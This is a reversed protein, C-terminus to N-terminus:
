IYFLVYFYYKKKTNKKRVSNRDPEVFHIMHKAFRLTVTGSILSRKLNTMFKEIPWEHYDTISIFSDLTKKAEEELLKIYHENFDNKKIEQKINDNVHEEEKNHILPINSLLEKLYLNIKRWMDKYQDKHEILIKENSRM